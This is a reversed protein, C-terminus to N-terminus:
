ITGSEIQVIAFNAVTAEKQLEGEPFINKIAGHQTTTAFNAVVLEKVLEGKRFVNNIHKGINGKSM